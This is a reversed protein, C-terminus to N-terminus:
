HYSFRRAHTTAIVRLSAAGGAKKWRKEKSSVVGCLEAPANM